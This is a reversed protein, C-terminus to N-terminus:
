VLYLPRRESISTRCVGCQALTEACTRCFAHGCNVVTTVSETLCVPCWSGTEPNANNSSVAVVSAVAPIPVPVPVVPATVLEDGEDALLDIEPFRGPEPGYFMHHRPLEHFRSRSYLKGQFLTLQISLGERYAVVRDLQLIASLRDNAKMQDNGASPKFGDLISGTIGDRITFKFRDVLDNNSQNRLLPLGVRFHPERNPEDPIRVIPSCARLRMMPEISPSRAQQRSTLRGVIAAMMDTHVSVLQKVREELQVLFTYEEATEWSQHFTLSVHKKAQWDNPNYDETFASNKMGFPHIKLRKAVFTLKDDNDYTFEAIHCNVHHYDKSLKLRSFDIHNINLPRM